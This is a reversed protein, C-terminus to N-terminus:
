LMAVPLFFTRQTILTPYFDFGVLGLAIRTEAEPLLM